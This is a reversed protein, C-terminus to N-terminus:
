SLNMELEVGLVMRRMDEMFEMIRSYFYSRVMKFGGRITSGKPGVYFMLWDMSFAFAMPEIRLLKDPSMHTSGVNSNQAFVRDSVNVLMLNNAFNLAIESIQRLQREEIKRTVASNQLAEIVMGVSLDGVIVGSDVHVSIIRSMVSHIRDSFWMRLVSLAAEHLLVGIKVIEHLM